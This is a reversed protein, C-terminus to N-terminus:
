NAVGCCSMGEQEIRVGPILSITNGSRTCVQQCRFRHTNLNPRIRARGHFLRGAVCAKKAEAYELSVTRIVGQGATACSDFNLFLREPEQQEQQFTGSFNDAALFQPLPEPRFPSVYIKIAAQIDKQLPQSGGDTVM